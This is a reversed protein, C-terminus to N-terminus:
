RVEWPEVFYCDAGDHHKHVKNLKEAEKKAKEETSHVSHIGPELSIVDTQVVYVKM